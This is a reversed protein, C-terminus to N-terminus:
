LLDKDREKLARYSAVLIGGEPIEHPMRATFSVNRHIIIIAKFSLYSPHPPTKLRSTSRILWPIDNSNTSGSAIVSFSVWICEYVPICFLLQSPDNNLLEKPCFNGNVHRLFLDVVQWSWNRLLRRPSLDIRAVTLLRSILRTVEHKRQSLSYWVRLSHSAVITSRMRLSPKNSGIRDLAWIISIEGISTVLPPDEEDRSKRNLAIIKIREQDASLLSCRGARLCVFFITSDNKLYYKGQRDNRRITMAYTCKQKANHMIDSEVRIGLVVTYITRVCDTLKESNLLEGQNPSARRYLFTLAAAWRSRAELQTDVIFM